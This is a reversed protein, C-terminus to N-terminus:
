LYKLTTLTKIEHKLLTEVEHKLLMEVKHKLSNKGTALNAKIREIEEKTNEIELTKEALENKVEEAAKATKFRAAELKFRAAELLRRKKAMDRDFAELAKLNVGDEREAKATKAKLAKEEKKLVFLDESLAKGRKAEDIDKNIEAIYKKRESM